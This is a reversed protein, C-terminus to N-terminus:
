VTKEEKTQASLACLLVPAILMLDFQYRVLCCPGLLLTALYLLALLGGPLFVWRRKWVAWTLCFLLMWTYFAPCLLRGLLPFRMWENERFWRRMLTKLGPLLSHEPIYSVASHSLDICGILAPYRINNINAFTSDTLDWYGRSTLLFADVYPIPYHLAERGWLKILTQLQGKRGLGLVDKVADALQPEYADVNPLAQAVEYATGEDMNGFHYARALQQCPVSLFEGAYLDAAHAAAKLGAAVGTGAVVGALAVAAARKTLWRRGFLLGLLLAALVAYVANNRLLCVLMTLLADWVLVSRRRKREPELFWRLWEVTLTLLAAAFLVDKTGSVAMIGYFPMVALWGLALWIRAQWRSQLWSLAYAASAATLLMQLLTYVAYGAENGLLGTWLALLLTHVLPHHTKYQGLAIQRMQDPIDFSANGPFFALYMPLWCVAMVGFCLWFAKRSSLGAPKRGRELLRALLGFGQGAAPGLCLAAGLCLALNKWGTRGHVNLCLGLALALVLLAGLLGFCVQFRRDTRQFFGHAAWLTLALAALWLLAAWAGNVPWAIALAMAIGLPACLWEMAKIFVQKKM